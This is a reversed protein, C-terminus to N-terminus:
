FKKLERNELEEVSPIGNRYLEFTYEKEPFKKGERRAKLTEKKVDEDIWYLYNEIPIYVIPSSFEYQKTNPWKLWQWYATRTYSTKLGPIFLAQDHVIQQVRHSAKEIEDETRAGRVKETLSDLEPDVYLNMNNTQPKPNGKEDFANMSHFFQYYRPFPPTVGWGSYAMVHQKQLMKRFANTPQQKDLSLKLGAKKAEEALLNMMSDILPHAGWNVEVSLVKGKDNMLYGDQNQKTFGAKSFYERAKSISFKNAEIDPNSYRGFGESFHELREGDGRFLITNVKKFNVAHSIGLRVNLDKIIPQHVNLYFGRPVRPYVNYFQSKTIYGNFYPKIDMKEYWYEPQGLPFYDIEGIKFLEFAKNQEAIVLYKINDVNCTYKKFKKDKAWWDKVRSLTISRGPRIDKKKVTYAGTTPPIRWQYREAYDPGYENYFHPAAPSLSAFFPMLPKPTKLTVSILHDGYVTVNAFQERYYQKQFPASINDSLRIYLFFMYDKAKVKVGDSYTAAPDLRYYVTRGDESVAWENALSPIIKQTIPHLGVLSLEIEDYVKGRFSSNANPGIPRLTPPYDPIFYRLTGGKKARPDGIEPEDAGDQWEIDKPIDEETKFSFFGEMEQRLIYNNKNEVLSALKKELQAKKELDAEGAIEEEVKKQSAELSTVQKDLWDAIYLNYEKVFHDFGSSRKVVVEDDGCSSILLALLGLSFSLISKLM